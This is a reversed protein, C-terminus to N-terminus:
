DVDDRLEWAEDEAATLLAAQVIVDTVAGIAQGSRAAERALFMTCYPHLKAEDLLLDLAGDTIPVGAQAFRRPLDHKWDERAIGPLPFRQAVYRLPGDADTLADLASRESSSVIVGVTTDVHLFDRMAQHEEEPWAALHHAEDLLVGVPQGEAAHAARKLTAAPSCDGASALEALISAILKDEGGLGASLRRGLWGTARRAKALAALGPALQARLV